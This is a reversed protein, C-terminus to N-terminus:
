GGSKGAHVAAATQRCLERQEAAEAVGAPVAPDPVAVHAPLAAPVIHAASPVPRNGVPEAAGAAAVRDGRGVHQAAPPEAPDRREEHGGLSRYPKARGTFPTPGRPEDAIARPLRGDTLGAVYYTYQIYHRTCAPYAHRQM